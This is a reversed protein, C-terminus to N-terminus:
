PPAPDTPAALALPFQGWLNTLATTTQQTIADACGDIVIAIHHAASLGFVYARGLGSQRAYYERFQNPTRDKPMAAVYTMHSFFHPAYDEPNIRRMHGWKRIFRIARRLCAAKARRMKRNSMFAPHPEPTAAESLLRRRMTGDCALRAMLAARIVWTMVWLLPSYLATRRDFGPQKDKRDQPSPLPMHM